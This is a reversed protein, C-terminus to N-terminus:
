EAMAHIPVTMDICEMSAQDVVSDLTHFSSLQCSYKHAVRSQTSLADHVIKQAAARSRVGRDRELITAQAPSPNDQCPTGTVDLRRSTRRPKGQRRWRLFTPLRGNDLPRCLM